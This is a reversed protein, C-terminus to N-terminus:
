SSLIRISWRPGRAVARRADGAEDRLQDCMLDCLRFLRADVIRYCVFPGKRRRAVLRNAYLVHLHKSVNNQSLHTADVLETVSREGGRLANLIRLRNPDSLAKFRDAILAIQDPLLPKEPM